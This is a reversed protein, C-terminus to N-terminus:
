YKKSKYDIRCEKNKNLITNRSRGPFSQEGVLLIHFIVGVSFVDAITTYIAEKEDYTIIEPAVFGPTGCKTFIIHKEHQFTALGYDVLKLGKEANNLDLSSKSEFLINEPKIDRHMINQSHLYDIGKLIQKVIGRIQHPKLEKNKRRAQIEKYLTIGELLELIIYFKNRDEFVEFLRMLNDHKLNRLIKLENFVSEQM